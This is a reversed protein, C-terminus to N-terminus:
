QGYKSAFTAVGSLLTSISQGRAAKRRQTAETELSQAGTEGEYMRTLARYEGEASLDAMLNLVSPDSVGAGSKAAVARARSELLRARRREEAAARQSTAREQGAMARLQRADARAGRENSAVSLVTGAAQLWPAAKGLFAMSTYM